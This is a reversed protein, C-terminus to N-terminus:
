EEMQLILSQRILGMVYPIDAADALAIEVNGNGWRGLGTIDKGMGRPDDLQEFPMNLSLRLKSKQPVIDVFNTVAKYAIYLKLYEEHVDSGLALIHERLQTFLESMPGGCVHPHDELTYNSTKRVQRYSQLRDEDLTPMPWVQLAIDALSAARAKIATEDWQVVDQLPRNLHLLSQRFGDSMDRKVGFLENSYTSNYGTLTLNGVTHLWTEYIREWDTGLERKWADSLTQPMIHEVTCQTVDAPEKKGLHQELKTLCYSALRAKYIHRTMFAERFEADSPFRRQASHLLFVAKVSEVYRTKDFGKERMFTAFTKDLSNPAIGCIARRFVYSEVMRAITLVDDPQLLDEEYNAYVALLFPYAVRVLEAVNNFVERLAPHPEQGLALKGYNVATRHISKVVSEANTQAMMDKFTTYIDRMVPISGAPHHLTLYDRMFLDFREQYAKQGFIAEMPWWYSQYLMQQQPASLGMLLFNRILDAQSLDLGTSNLSEFIRQPNDERSNLAIDVVLLRHLGEIIVSVDECAELSEQFFDFNALMQESPTGPMPAQDMLACFTEKDTKSPLLKYRADGSEPEHRLFYYRIKAPAFQAVTNYEPPLHRSLAELLLMVTTLRQQGDIVVLPAPATATGLGESVTVVSGVFHGSESQSGVRVIDQWLQRCQALRWSYPRQYVPIYFQRVSRLLNLITTESAKM